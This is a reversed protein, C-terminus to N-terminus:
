AKVPEGALLLAVEGGLLVALWFLMLSLLLLLLLSLPGYVVDLQPVLSAYLKVLASVLYSAGEGVLAGAAAARWAVPRPPLLRYMLTLLFFGTLSAAVLRAPRSLVLSTPWPLTAELGVLALLLLPGLLLFAALGALRLLRRRRHRGAMAVFAQEIQMLASLAAAFALVVAAAGLAATRRAFVALSEQVQQPSYPLLQALTQIVRTAEEQNIRTAVAFAVTAMPVLALLTTYALAGAYLTLHDRAAKRGLTRLFLAARSIWARLTGGGGWLRARFGGM